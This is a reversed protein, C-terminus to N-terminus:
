NYIEKILKEAIRYVKAYAVGWSADHAVKEFEEQTLSDHLHNWNLAHAWEHVLTDIASSENLAKDITILFKNGKKTCLGDNKKMKVRRVSVPFGPPIEKKLRRVLKNYTQFKQM